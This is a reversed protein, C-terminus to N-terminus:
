RAPSIGSRRWDVELKVWHAVSGFKGSPPASLAKKVRGGGVFRAFKRRATIVGGYAVGYLLVEVQRVGFGPPCVSGRGTKM